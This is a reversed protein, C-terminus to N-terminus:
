KALLTPVFHFYSFLFFVDRHKGDTEVFNISNQKPQQVSVLIHSILSNGVTGEHIPLIVTGDSKPPSATSYAAKHASFERSNVKTM